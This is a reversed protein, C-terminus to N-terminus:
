IEKHNFAIQPNLAFGAGSLGCKGKEFADIEGKRIRTKPIFSEM